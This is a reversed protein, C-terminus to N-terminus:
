NAVIEGQLATLADVLEAQEKAPIELKDLTRDLAEILAGFHADTIGMGAHIKKMTRGKYDCGGGAISCIQEVLHQKLKGIDTSAFFASIRPDAAIRAVLDDVILRIVDIGGLRDYLSPQDDASIEDDTTATSSPTAGDKAGAGCALSALALAALM